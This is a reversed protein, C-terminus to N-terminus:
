SLHINTYWNLSIDVTDYCRRIRAAINHYGYAMTYHRGIKM